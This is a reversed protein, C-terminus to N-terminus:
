TLHVAPLLLTFVHKSYEKPIISLYVNFQFGDITSDYSNIQLKAIYIIARNTVKM